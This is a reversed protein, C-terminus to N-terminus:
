SPESISLINGLIVEIRKRFGAVVDCPLRGRSYAEAVARDAPLEGLLPIQQERCFEHIAVGGLGARNIVVGMPLKMARITEVALQLDHLGFPTPETVLVVLDSGKVAEVVPCSTGPPADVFLLEAAPAVEKVARIVPPSMHQGIALSGDLFVMGGSVGIRLRGIPFSLEQIAGAPCVLSCAGCAHCLDPFVMPPGNVCVIAGYQCIEGCAGCETCRTASVRPIRTEIVRSTAIEPELFIHGNPEEVDADLYAVRGRKRAAVRALNTALTTKGTGGKGSALSIQV